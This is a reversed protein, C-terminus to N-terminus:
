SDVKSTNNVFGYQVLSAQINTAGINYFLATSTTNDATKTIGYHLAAATNDHIFALPTLGAIRAAQSLATRQRLSWNTPVTIVCDRINSIETMKEAYRKGSFLIMAVVEEVTLSIEEDPDNLKFRKLDFTVTGREPDFAMAYEEYYKKSIKFTEEDSELAGLLKDLFVFTTDPNRTQKMAGEKDYVRESNYFSIQM